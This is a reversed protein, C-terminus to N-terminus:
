DSVCSTPIEAPLLIIPCLFVQATKLLKATFMHVAAPLFVTGGAVHPKKRCAIRYLVQYSFFLSKSPVTKSAYKVLGENQEIFCGVLHVILKFDM